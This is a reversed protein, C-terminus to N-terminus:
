LWDLNKVHSTWAIRLLIEISSLLRKGGNNKFDTWSRKEDSSVPGIELMQFFISSIRSIWSDYIINNPTLHPFHHALLELINKLVKLENWQKHFQIRGLSTTTTCFTLFSLNHLGQPPLPCLWELFWPHNFFYYQIFSCQDILNASIM